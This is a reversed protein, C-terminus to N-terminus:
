LTKWFSTTDAKLTNEHARQTRDVPCALAPRRDRAVARFFL